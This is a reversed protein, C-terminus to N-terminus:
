RPLGFGIAIIAVLTCLLVAWRHRISWSAYRGFFLNIREIYSM